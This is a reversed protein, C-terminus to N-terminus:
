DGPLARILTFVMACPIGATPQVQPLQRRREKNCAPWPNRGAGPMGQAREIKRLAHRDCSEPAHRRPFTVEHGRSNSVRIQLSFVSFSILESWLECSIM